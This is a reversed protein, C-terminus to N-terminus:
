ASTLSKAMISDLIPLPGLGKDINNLALNIGEQGGICIELLPRLIKFSSDREKLDLQHKIKDMAGEERQSIDQGRYSLPYRIPGLIQLSWETSPELGASPTM